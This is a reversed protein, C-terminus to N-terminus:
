SAGWKQKTAQGNENVLHFGPMWSELTAAAGGMKMKSGSTSCVVEHQEMETSAEPLACTFSGTIEFTRNALACQGGSLTVTGLTPGTFTDELSTGLSGGLATHAYLTLENIENVICNAPKEVVCSTYNLTLSGEGSPELGGQANVQPCDIVVKVLFPHGVLVTGSNNSTAQIKTYSTVPKGEVHYEHAQALAPLALLALACVAVALGLPSRRHFM